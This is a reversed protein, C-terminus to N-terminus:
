CKACRPGIRLDAYKYYSISRILLSFCLAKEVVEYNSIITLNVQHRTHGDYQAPEQGVAAADEEDYRQPKRMTSRGVAKRRLDGGGGAEVQSLTSM